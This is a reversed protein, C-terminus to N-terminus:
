RRRMHTADSDRNDERAEQVLRDIGKQKLAVKPQTLKLDLPVLIRTGKGDFM